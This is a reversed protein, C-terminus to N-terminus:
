AMKTATRKGQQRLSQQQGVPLLCCLFLVHEAYRKPFRQSDKPVAAVFFIIAQTSPCNISQTQIVRNRDDYFSVTYLYKAPSSGLVKVMTGTPMGRTETSQVIAQAYTPNSNYSTIFYNGNNVNSMDMTAPLGTPSTWNYNDFFTQTLLEFNSSGTNPYSSNNSAQAQHFTRPNADTLLGTRWPRNLADYMTVMWSALGTSPNRMNADQMMVLGDRGDYVMWSEGAGPVKKVILRHRSDYDNRFCHENLLYPIATLNWTSNQLLLVVAKPQLVYRLLGFDDYVYYTCLWGTHNVGPNADQQVKKLIVQGEKDKYAIVTHNAEDTTITKYL